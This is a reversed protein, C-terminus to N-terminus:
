RTADPLDAHTEPIKHKPLHLLSAIAHKAQHSLHRREQDRAPIPHSFHLEVVIEKQRLVSLVSQLLTIDGDYAVETNASGDLNPYRIAVPWVTADANIAAQLLGTKFPKLETGNTTTGEPFLCLCKGARLGQEMGGATRGTDQRRAREIFLTDTQVALWGIVPWDRVESKAVFNVPHVQKLAWIDIWSIHNAIFLIQTTSRAPIEGHTSVRINLIDLFKASWAQICAERAHERMRPLALAAKITGYLLHLAIRM